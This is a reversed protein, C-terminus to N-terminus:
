HTEGGRGRTTNTWKGTAYNENKGRRQRQWLLYTNPGKAEKRTSYAVGVEM